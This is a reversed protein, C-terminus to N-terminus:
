LKYFSQARYLGLVDHRGVFGSGNALLGLLAVKFLKDNAPNSGPVEIHINVDLVTSETVSIKVQYRIQTM